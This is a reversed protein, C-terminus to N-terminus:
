ELGIIKQCCKIKVSKGLFKAKIVKDALKMVYEYKQMYVINSIIDKDAM